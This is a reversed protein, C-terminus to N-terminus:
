KNKTMFMEIFRQIICNTLVEEVHKVSLLSKARVHTITDKLATNTYFPNTAINASTAILSINHQTVNPQLHSKRRRSNDEIKHHNNLNRKTSCRVKVKTLKDEKKFQNNM